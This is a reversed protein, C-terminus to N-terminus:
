HEFDAMPEDIPSMLEYANCYIDIILQSGFMDVEFFVFVEMRLYRIM